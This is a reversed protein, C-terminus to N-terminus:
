RWEWADAHWQLHDHTDDPTELVSQWFQNLAAYAAELSTHPSGYDRVFARWPQAWLDPPPQLAPPWPTDRLTFTQRCAHRLTGVSPLLLHQAIALMDYLDKARRNEQGGYDRTYAHIKEALQQEVHVAPVAVPPLDTFDLLNRLEVRELPRPDDPVLNVDLRLTEFPRGALLCRIPFRLGGETGEAQIPRGEGVFFELYDGLDAEAAEEVMDQLQSTTRRWTTDADATLRAHDGIRALMALGGKLAWSGEPATEAIRALLRQLAAEKRLRDLPLGSQEGRTKLRTELSRRLAAPDSYHKM